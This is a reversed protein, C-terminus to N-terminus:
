GVSIASSTVCRKRVFCATWTTSFCASISERTLSSMPRDHRPSVPSYHRITRRLKASQLRHPFHSTVYQLDEAELVFADVTDVAELCAGSLPMRHEDATRGLGWTLLEEGTFSGPGLIATSPRGGVTHVNRLHGRVLFLMSRVPEGARAVVLGPTFLAPRLRECIIDLLAPDMYAFLPVRKVLDLCLHRKLDRRLGEPLDAILAEEDIGRTAAWRQREYVGVSARLPAPIQRRSMWWGLDQRRARMEEVRHRLSQLFVQLLPFLSPPYPTYRPLSPPALSVLTNLLM